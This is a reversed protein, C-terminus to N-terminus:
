RRTKRAETRTAIIQAVIAVAIEGPTEAGIDLGIPAHLKELGSADVGREALWERIRRVRRRSGIMGVYLAQLELAVELCEADLRHGRTVLVIHRDPHGGLERLRVRPDGVLIQTADPLRVPNAFDVRDDLVVVRFGARSAVETVAAGVHGAGVVVVEPMEVMPEVFVVEGAHGQARVPRRSEIAALGAERIVDEITELGASFVLHGQADVLIKRGVGEGSVVTAVAADGGARLEDVASFFEGAGVGGIESGLREVFVDLVGGCISASEFGDEELLRVEVLQPEGTVLTRQAKGFVEAEGCGGGITGRAGGLPDMTMRAGVKRPTSGRTRVVSAVALVPSRRVGGAPDMAAGQGASGGLLLSRVGELFGALDDM